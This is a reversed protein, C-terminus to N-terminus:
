GANSGIAEEVTAQAEAIEDDSAPIYGVDEILSNVNELYFTAFDAVEPRALSENKLYIFLPRSLKYSDDQATEVSPAVCGEGADYEVATLTDQNEQYYAFGFFGWAGPTGQIGQSIVNDDESANFDQRPEEIDAPELITENFFDYTGSDAGPAFVELPDAPFEPNVQDWSNVGDPGWISILEETTLCTVYDTAPNTVMTLADTGVRVETFEIGNEGCLEVEDDEIPRSANSIDTDGTGCFREFGGGSGSIGLNVIVDPQVAAYEESIADTLPGVTSSGDIEISGSLAEGGADADGDESDEAGADGGADTATDTADGDDGCAALVLSFAVAAPILGRTLTSRKV